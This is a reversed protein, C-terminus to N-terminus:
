MVEKGQKKLDTLIKVLKEITRFSMEGTEQHTITSSGIKVGIRKKDKLLERYNM